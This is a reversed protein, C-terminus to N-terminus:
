HSCCSGACCSGPEFHQSLVPKVPCSKASKCIDTGLERHTQQLTDTALDPELTPPYVTFGMVNLAFGYAALFPLFPQGWNQWSGYFWKFNGKQFTIRKICKSLVVLFFFILESMSTRWHKQFHYKFLARVCSSPKRDAEPSLPVNM